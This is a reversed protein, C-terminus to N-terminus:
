GNTLDQAHSKKLGMLMAGTPLYIRILPLSEGIRNTGALMMVVDVNDRTGYVRQSILTPDHVEDTGIDYTILKDTRSRRVLLDVQTRVANLYTNAIM